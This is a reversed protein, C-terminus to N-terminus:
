GLEVAPRPWRLLRMGNATVLLSTGVDALVALWMSGGGLLVLAFFVLKVAISLAVNFRVTNMASRALRIVFPLQRLDDGLLVVDATELAQAARGMAVGVAAAALAPTDNIGDGVMAVRGHAAGLEEVATVKDGPLLGARVDRLGVEAAIRGATAAHDGTLMVLPAIGMGTLEALAARSGDRTTDALAIYGLYADGDSVLMTTLGAADAAAIDAHFPDHTADDEFYAHSGVTITRGDVRGTIGRGTLATVDGAPYRGAVGRATAEAVVAGALPHESRREVAAALAVLEDCASCSPLPAPSFPLLLSLPIGVDQAITESGVYEEDKREQRGQAKANVEKELCDAAHVAVVAPQGRTITGTKDFAVARVRSLEELVAGGKVLVGHRAGNSIASILTVPTSIVLACPCAVVLLALARYLWGQVGPAPDWFPADFLLPPVVAVLLAVAIVAPTYIRAFRDVFRQAPARREQAESVLAIMRSITNDAALHTIEIELAGPGNVSGAYVEDGPAKEVPRSEGTIPAQDVASSGALVRGDMPLREGPVVAIRDGVRLAAVPVRSEGGDRLLTAESPALASLSGIADRARAATYGELAEGLAFLVMVLGAETYAGIIVAGAAAITMLLNITIERNVRLARVASRAIPYGALLMALVAMGAFLPSEIGLGPMLEDFLLGPLVLLAALLALRTDWRGWLYPLLGGVVSRRGGGSPAHDHDHGHDDREATLPRGDATTGATPRRGDATTADYGLERVRAIVREPAVEGAVRLSGTTFNLMAAQVGDLRTVGKEISRACDACDMGTIQYRQENEIM